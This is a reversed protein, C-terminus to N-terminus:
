GLARSIVSRGLGTLRGSPEYSGVPHPRAGCPFRDIRGGGRGAALLHSPGSFPVACRTGRPRHREADHHSAPRRSIPRPMMATTAVAARPLARVVIAPRAPPVTPRRDIGRPSGPRIRRGDRWDGRGPLARGARRASPLAPAGEDQGCRPGRRVCCRRTQGQEEDGARPPGLLRLPRDDVEGGCPCRAVAPGRLRDFLVLGLLQPPPLPPTFFGTLASSVPDEDDRATDTASKPGTSTSCPRALM